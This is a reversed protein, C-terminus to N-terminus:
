GKIRIKRTGKEDVDIFIEMYKGYFIDKDVKEAWEVFVIADENLYDDFEFFDIDTKEMRYFDFHLILIGNKGRYMRLINFTPSTVLDESVGFYECMSKIMLTKGAGLGGYFLLVDGVEIKEAIQRAIKKTEEPDGSLFVKNLINM